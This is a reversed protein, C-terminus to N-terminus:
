AKAAPQLRSLRFVAGKPESALCAIEWGHALVIQHVVALGLGTGNQNTTFYPRFVEQRHELPVGPGNDRVELWPGEPGSRGCEIQIEGGAGVAQVANILLNFLVQRLLQEDASVTVQETPLTLRINKDELDTALARAVDGVVANLALAARRVERPKSYNIFENLQATVRDVEDAIELSRARVEPSAAAEKSIMQALGRIINLPNRTEHALGAAAVNMERLHANMESARLLRMQFESSRMVSRWALGSGLAAAGAFGIIVCRLWLDRTIAAQFTDTSVAIMLGHLGQKEILSKFEAEDMWPPRRPRARGDPGAPARAGARDDRNTSELGPEAPPPPPPKAAGAWPPSGPFRPREGRAGGDPAPEPMVITPRGPERDSPPNPGFDVPTVVTVTHRQWRVESSPMGRADVDVPEGASAVVAGAANLLVVSKLEGSKPQGPGGEGPKLESQKVLENLASELRPQSIIGGWRRQSRIVVGLTATIDRARSIVASRVAEQVRHHEIGQWVMITAWAGALLGYVLTTRTMM